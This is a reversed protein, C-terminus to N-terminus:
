AISREITAFASHNHISEFSETEVRYWTIQPHDELAKASARVVDEVFTPKAFAQETVYKEDERKLLSFVPSSASAEAIDILEEFWVFKKFRCRIRIIARQSHAGIDAIALSCPCVTMVPVDVGVTLRVGNTGLEGEVICDYDMVSKARSSPSTRELFYPFTLHVHANTAELRTQLDTLLHRFTEFDLGMTWSGLAEVFRSMHTGKFAAPLDVSLSLDAVTHQKGHAKDRVVLPLRVHKIGVRDIAMSVDAPSNQVDKM